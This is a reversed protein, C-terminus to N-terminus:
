MGKGGIPGQDKNWYAVNLEATDPRELLYNRVMFNNNILKIQRGFGFPKGQYVQGEYLDLLKWKSKDAATAKRPTQIENIAAYTRIRAFGTAYASVNMVDNWCCVVSTTAGTDGSSIRLFRDLM